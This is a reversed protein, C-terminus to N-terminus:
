WPDGSLQLALSSITVKGPGPSSKWLTDIAIAAAARNAYDSAVLPYM